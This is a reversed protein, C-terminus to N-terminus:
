HSYSWFSRISAMTRIMGNSVPFSARGSDVFNDGTFATGDTLMRVTINNLNGGDSHTALMRSRTMGVLWHQRSCRSFAYFGLSITITMRLVVDVSDRGRLTIVVGELATDGSGNNKELIDETVASSIITTGHGM